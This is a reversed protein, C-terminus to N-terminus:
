ANPTSGARERGEIGIKGQQELSATSRRDPPATRAEGCENADNELLLDRELGRRRHVPSEGLMEPPHRRGAEIGDADGSEPAETESPLLRCITVAQRLSHQVAGEVKSSHSAGRIRFSPCRQEPNGPEPGPTHVDVKKHCQAAGIHPGLSIQREGHCQVFHFSQSAPWSSVLLFFQRSAPRRPARDGCSEEPLM